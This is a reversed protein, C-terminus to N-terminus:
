VRMRHAMFYDFCYFLNNYMLMQRSNVGVEDLMFWIFVYIDLLM